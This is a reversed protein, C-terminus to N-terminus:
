GNKKAGPVRKIGVGIMALVAPSAKVPRRSPQAARQWQRLQRRAADASKMTGSGMSVRTATTLSEEAELRDKMQTMARVVAIPTRSLWTM